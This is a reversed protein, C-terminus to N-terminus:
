HQISNNETDENKKSLRSVLTLAFNKLFLLQISEDARDLLTASIKLLICDTVSIVSAVRSKGSLYSMEGFCEGRDLFAINQKNKEVATQGSLIIFFCDDVEGENVIIEGQPVKVLNSADLIAKVQERSFREFFPVSHVYDVEDEIKTKATSEKLGRLAVRLEYAFDSCNQYRDNPNKALAKDVIKTLVDPIGKRVQEMPIPNANSIRFLISYYNEGPFAKQGTLLEYLVCGLSFIDSREDVPGEKVQEPSMYSPSGFIGKSAKNETKIQAISFDTIRVEGAKNLMINSPKIDRHVVGQKHAYDLARCVVFIIEVIKSIPLLEDKHCYKELTPGDIFEMTIYYYDMYMGADYISVINPHTLKGASQAEIFFRERFKNEMKPDLDAAPRSIKISVNRKIFPDRGLYVFGMSGQGLKGVIEYRGVTKIDILDEAFKKDDQGDEIEQGLLKAKLKTTFGYKKSEVPDIIGNESL